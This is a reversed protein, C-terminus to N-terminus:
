WSFTNKYYQVASLGIGINRLVSTPKNGSTHKVINIYVHNLTEAVQNEDDRTKANHILSIESNILIGKNTPFSRMTPLFSIQCLERSEFM